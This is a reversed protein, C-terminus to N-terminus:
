QRPLVLSAKAFDAFVDLARPPRGDKLRALGLGLSPIDSRLPVYAVRSGDQAVDTAPLLNLLSYGFGNGVLTRVTSIDAHRAAPHYAAGSALFLSMFYERSLPLDLLIYPDEALAELGVESEQAIRHTSSVVAHAEVDVIREFDVGGGLEIDYTIAAHVAGSRLWELLEEQTGTRIEVAIGPHRERFRRVLSPVAIPAVSVLSGVVVRGSDDSVAASMRAELEAARSLTARAEVLLLNGEPTLTVGQGRHRVLLTVGLVRELNGMSASLGPQSIGVVAAAETMSGCDAVAVFNELERLAIRTRMETEPNWCLVAQPM